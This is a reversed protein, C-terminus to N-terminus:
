AIVDVNLPLTDIEGEGGKAKTKAKTKEAEQAAPTARSVTIPRKNQEVRRGVVWEEGSIIGERRIPIGMGWGCGVRASEGTFM